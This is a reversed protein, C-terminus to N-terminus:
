TTGNTVVEFGGRIMRISIFFMIGLFVICNIGEFSIINYGFAAAAVTNAIMSYISAFVLDLYLDDTNNKM